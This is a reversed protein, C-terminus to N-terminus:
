SWGGQTDSCRHMRVCLRSLASSLLPVSKSVCSGWPRSCTGVWAAPRAQQAWGPQNGLLPASAGGTLGGNTVGDHGTHQCESGASLRDCKATIHWLNCQCKSFIGGRSGNSKWSKEQFPLPLLSSVTLAQLTRCHEWVGPASFGVKGELLGKQVWRTFANPPALASIFAQVVCCNEM